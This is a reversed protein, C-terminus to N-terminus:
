LPSGHDVYERKKPMVKIPTNGLWCFFVPELTKANNLGRQRSWHGYQLMQKTSYLFTFIEYHLHYKTVLKKIKQVNSETRGAMIWISDRGPKVLNTPIVTALFTDLDDSDLLPERQLLGRGEEAACLKANKVVYFCMMPVQSTLNAFLRTKTVYAAALEISEKGPWRLWGRKLNRNAISRASPAFNAVDAERSTKSGAGDAEPAEKAAAGETTAASAAEDEASAGSPTTPWQSRNLSASSCM